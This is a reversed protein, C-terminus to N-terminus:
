IVIRIAEIYIISVKKSTPSFFSFLFLNIKLNITEVITLVHDLYVHVTYSSM